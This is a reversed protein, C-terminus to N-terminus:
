NNFFTSFAHDLYLESAGNKYRFDLEYMMHHIQQLSDLSLNMWDKQIFSYPLRYAIKKAHLLQKSKKYGIFHYARFVQESWFVIWFQLPYTDKITVWM